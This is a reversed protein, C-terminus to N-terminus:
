KKERKRMRESEILFFDIILEQNKSPVWLAIM